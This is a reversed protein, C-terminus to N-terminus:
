AVQALSNFKANYWHTPAMMDIFQHPRYHNYRFQFKQLQRNLEMLNMLEKYFSYFEFKSTVNAREVHVNLDPRRPPVVYLPLALNECAQEFFQRLESGGDVEISQIDFPVNQEDPFHNNVEKNVDIMRRKLNEIGKNIKEETFRNGEASQSASGMEFIEDPNAIDTSSNRRM